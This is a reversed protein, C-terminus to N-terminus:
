RQMDRRFEWDRLLCLERWSVLGERLLGYGKMFCVCNEEHFMSVGFELGLGLWGYRRWTGFKWDHLM